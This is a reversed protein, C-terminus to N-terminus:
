MYTTLSSAPPDIILAAQWVMWCSATVIALLLLWFSYGQQRPEM